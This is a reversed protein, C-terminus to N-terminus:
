VRKMELIEIIAERGKPLNWMKVQYIDELVKRKTIKLGEKKDLSTKDLYICLCYFYLLTDSYDTETENPLFKYCFYLLASSPITIYDKDKM